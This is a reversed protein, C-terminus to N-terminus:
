LRRHRRHYHSAPYNRRNGHRRHKTPNAGPAAAVVAPNRVVVPQALAIEGGISLFLTFVVVLKKWM